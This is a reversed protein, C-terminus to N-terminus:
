EYSLSEPIEIINGREIAEQPIRMYEQFGGDYSIGFAEYDKCLQNFGHICMSCHGCGVNPPIAVRMGVKYGKIASGVEAIEGAVEHGLVRKQGEKIKFHGFKYIRLDTGCIASAHVKILIEKDSIVPKECEEVRIDGVGYYFAAKM